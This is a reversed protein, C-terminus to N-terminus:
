SEKMTSLAKLLNHNYFHILRESEDELLDFIFARCLASLAQDSSYGRSMLYFRQEQNIQGVTAGHSAKVDDNDIQLEPKTDVEAKQSLLLNKNIQESRSKAAMKEILVKGNFVARASDTLLGRYDEFSQTDGKMHSVVTHHDSFDKNKGLYVGKLHTEARPSLLRIDSDHRSWGGPLTVDWSKFSAETEVSAFVSRSFSAQEGGSQQSALTLTAGEEVHVDVRSNCLGTFNDGCYDVFVQLSSNAECNIMLHLPALGVHNQIKNLNVKIKLAKGVQGRAEIVLGLGLFPLAWQDITEAGVEKRSLLTMLKERQKTDKLVQKHTFVKLGKPLGTAVFDFPSSFDSLEISCFHESEDAIVKPEGKAMQFNQSRLSSFDVYKWDEGTPYASQGLHEAARGISNLSESDLDALLVKQEPLYTQWAKHLNQL